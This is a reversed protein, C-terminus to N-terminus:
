NNSLSRGNAPECGLLSLSQPYELCFGPAQFVKRCGPRSLRCTWSGLTSPWRSPLCPLALPHEPGWGGPFTSELGSRRDSDLGPAIPGNGLVQPSELTPMRLMRVYTHACVRVRMYMCVWHVCVALRSGQGGRQSGLGEGDHIKNFRQLNSGVSRGKRPEGGLGGKGRSLAPVM